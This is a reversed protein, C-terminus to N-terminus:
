DDDPGDYTWTASGGWGGELEGLLATRWTTQGALYGRAARLKWTAAVLALVTEVAEEFTVNTVAPKSTKGALKVLFRGNTKKVMDPDPLNEDDIDQTLLDHMYRNRLEYAVGADDIASGIARRISEDDIAVQATMTQCTEITRAWSQPAALLAEVSDLGRLQAHLGRLAADLAVAEEAIRGRVFTWQDDPPLEQLSELDVAGTHCTRQAASVLLPEVTM